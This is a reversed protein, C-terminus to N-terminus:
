IMASIVSIVSDHHLSGKHVVILIHNVLAPQKM